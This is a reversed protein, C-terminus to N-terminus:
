RHDACNNIAARRIREAGATFTKLVDPSFVPKDSSTLVQTDTYKKRRQNEM